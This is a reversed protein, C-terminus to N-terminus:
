RSSLKWSRVRANSHVAAAAPASTPTRSTAAASAPSTAAAAVTLAPGTSTAPPTTTCTTACQARTSRRGAEPPPPPAPPSASCSTTTASESSTPPSPPAAPSVMTPASTCGAPQTARSVDAPVTDTSCYSALSSLRTTRWWPRLPSDEDPRPASSGPVTVQTESKWPASGPPGAGAAGDEEADDVAAAAAAVVVDARALARSRSCRASSSNRYPAGTTSPSVASGSPSALTGISVPAASGSSSATGAFFPFFPLAAGLFADAAAVAAAAVAVAAGTVASVPAATSSICKTTPPASPHTVTTRSRSRLQAKADVSRPRSGGTSGMDRSDTALATSAAAFAAPALGSLLLGVFPRANGDGSPLVAAAAAV